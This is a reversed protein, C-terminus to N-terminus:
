WVYWILLYSYYLYIFTYFYLITQLLIVLSNLTPIFTNLHSLIFTVGKVQFVDPNGKFDGFVFIPHQNLVLPMFDQPTSPISKSMWRCGIGKFTCVMRKFRCSNTEGIGSTGTRKFARLM